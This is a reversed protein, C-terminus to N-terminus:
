LPLYPSAPSNQQTRDMVLLAFTRGGGNKVLQGDELSGCNLSEKTTPEINRFVESVCFKSLVFTM